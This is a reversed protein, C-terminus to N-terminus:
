FGLCLPYLDGLFSGFILLFFSDGIQLGLPHFEFESRFPLKRAELVKTKEINTVDESFDRKEICDIADLYSQFVTGLKGEEWYRITASYKNEKEEYDESISTGGDLQELHAHKKTM